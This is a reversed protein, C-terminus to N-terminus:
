RPWNFVRSKLWSRRVWNGGLTNASICRPPPLFESVVKFKFSLRRVVSGAPTNSSRVESVVRCKELLRRVVSGTSM